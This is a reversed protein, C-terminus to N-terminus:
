GAQCACYGQQARQAVNQAKSDSGPGHRRQEYGFDSPRPYSALLTPGRLPALCEHLIVLFQMFFLM